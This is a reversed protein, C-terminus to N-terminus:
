KAAEKRRQRIEDKISDPSVGDVHIKQWLYINLLGWLAMARPPNEGQLSKLTEQDYMESAM